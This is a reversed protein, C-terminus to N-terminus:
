EVLLVGGIMMGMACGYKLEGAKTPTFAIEVPQNLPLKQSIKYENMVLETACTKDTKRTVILKLPEGAKVNIPSPEFGAETVTLQVTRPEKKAEVAPAPKAPAAKKADAALAHSAAFVLGAVTVALFAKILKSFPHM